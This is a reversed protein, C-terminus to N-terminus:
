TFMPDMKNGIPKLCEWWISEVYNLGKVENRKELPIFVHNEWGGRERIINFLHQKYGEKYKELHMAYRKLYNDTSGIYICEGNTITFIGYIGKENEILEVQEKVSQEQSIQRCKEIKKQKEDSNKQITKYDDPCERRELYKIAGKTKKVNYKECYSKVTFTTLGVEKAIDTYGKGQEIWKEFNEKTVLTKKKIEEAKLAEKKSKIVQKLAERAKAESINPDGGRKKLYAFIEKKEKSAEDQTLPFAEIKRSRRNSKKLSTNVVAEDQTLPTAEDKRVVEEEKFIEKYDRYMEELIKKVEEEVRKYGYQGILSRLQNEM